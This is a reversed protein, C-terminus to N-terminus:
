ARLAELRALTAAYNAAFEASAMVGLQEGDRERVLHLSGARDELRYGAPMRVRKAAARSAPPAPPPPPAVPAATWAEPPPLAPLVFGRSHLRPAPAIAALDAATM